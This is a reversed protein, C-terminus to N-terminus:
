NFAITIPYSGSYAGPMQGAPVTFSANVGFTATGDAALRGSGGNTGFGSVRFEAGESKVTVTEPLAVAYNANYGGAVRFTSLAQGAPSMASRGSKGIVVRGSDPESLNSVMVAGAAIDTEAPGLVTASVLATASAARLEFPAALIGAAAALIAVTRFAAQRRIQRM